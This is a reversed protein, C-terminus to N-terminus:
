KNWLTIENVPRTYYIITIYDLMTASLPKKSDNYYVAKIILKHNPYPNSVSNWRVTDGLKLVVPIVRPPDITDKKCSCLASLLGM